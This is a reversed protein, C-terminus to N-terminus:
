NLVHKYLKYNHYIILQCNHGGDIAHEVCQLQEDVRHSVVDHCLGSFHSKQSAKDKAAPNVVSCMVIFFVGPGAISSYAPAVAHKFFM